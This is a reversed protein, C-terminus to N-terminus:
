SNTEIDNRIELRPVVTFVNFGVMRDTYLPGAVAVCSSSMAFENLIWAEGQVPYFRNSSLQLPV